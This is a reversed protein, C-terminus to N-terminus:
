QDVFLDVVEVVSDIKENSSTCSPHGEVDNPFENLDIYELVM